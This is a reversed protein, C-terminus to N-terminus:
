CTFISIKKEMDLAESFIVYEGFTCFVNVDKIGPYSPQIVVEIGKVSPWKM